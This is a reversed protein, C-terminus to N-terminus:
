RGVTRGPVSTHGRPRGAIAYHKEILRAVYIGAPENPGVWPYLGGHDQAFNTVLVWMQRQNNQCVQRRTGDRSNRLAPFILMSVALMVGGAVTLDALSWGLIGAPPDGASAFRKRSAAAAALRKRRRWEDRARGNAGGLREATRCCVRRREPHAAFCARLQALESGCSRAARAIASAGGRREDADLEGLLYRILM